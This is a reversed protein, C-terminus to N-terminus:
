ASMLLLSIFSGFIMIFITTTITLVITAVILYAKAFNRKSPHTSDSLAWIILVIYNVFPIFSIFLTIIWEKISIPEYVHRIENYSGKDSALDSFDTESDM